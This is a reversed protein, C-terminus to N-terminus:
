RHTLAEDRWFDVTNIFDDFIEHFEKYAIGNDVLRTLILMKSDPSLGLTAGQTGQGFLNALMAETAFSESRSAPFPAVTCQLQIGESVQSIMLAVGQDIPISYCGPVETALNAEEVELDKCLKKMLQEIM